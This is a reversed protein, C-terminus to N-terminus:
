PLLDPLARKLIKGTPGRPLSECILVQRPVKMSALHERCFHRLETERAAAGEKLIVFAVAVEGRGADPVGIVSGEQVAPHQTLVAEIEGPFVNEGGIIMMEKLRGTISLFGDADLRGQDGTHFWGDADLVAATEQPRGFYGKMVGPGRVLIEGDHDRDLIQGAPNVIRVQCNPITRGVTGPRCQWPLNLSVVPSTETLGYGEDLQVGFEERYARAVEAPLPEGGSIALYMSAFHEAAARKVRQMAAYMSPIALFISVRRDAIAKVAAAPNFRPLYHVSMGQWIPLLTTGTLGFIHFPPLVSLVTHDQQIDAFAICDRCNSMLNGYTLEVGKPEGATGSTYLIVATQAEAATPLPPVSQFKSLLFRRKLGAQELYLTKLGLTGALEAFHKVTIVLDLGANAAVRRLEAPQLLFNLPIAIRGAWLCGFLTGAFAACGPLLIGIRPCDSEKVILARMVRAFTTLQGYNLARGADSVAAANPQTEAFHCLRQLIM